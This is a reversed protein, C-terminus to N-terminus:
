DIRREKTIKKSNNGSNRKMLLSFALVTSNLFLGWLILGLKDSLLERGWGWWIVGVIWSTGCLNLVASIYVIAITKKM